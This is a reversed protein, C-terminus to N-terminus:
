SRAQHYPSRLIWKGRSLVVRKSGHNCASMRVFPHANCIHSQGKGGRPTNYKDKDSASTAVDCMDQNAPFMPM